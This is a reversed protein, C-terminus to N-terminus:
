VVEFLMKENLENNAWSSLDCMMRFLSSKHVKNVDGWANKFRKDKSGVLLYEKDYYGDTITVTM